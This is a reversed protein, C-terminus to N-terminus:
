TSAGNPQHMHSSILFFYFKWRALVSFNNSENSRRCRKHSKEGGSTPIFKKNRDLLLVPTTWVVVDLQINAGCLCNRDLLFSMTITSCIPYHLSFSFTLVTPRGPRIECRLLKNSIRVRHKQQFTWVSKASVAAERGGGPRRRGAEVGVGCGGERRQKERRRAAAEVGGRQRKAVTDGDGRGSAPQILDRQLYPPRSSWPDSGALDAPRSSRQILDREIEHLKKM